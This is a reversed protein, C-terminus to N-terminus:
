NQTQKIIGLFNIHKDRFLRTKEIYEPPDFFNLITGVFILKFIFWLKLKAAVEMEHQLYYISDQKRQTYDKRHFLKDM